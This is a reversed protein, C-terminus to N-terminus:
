EQADGASAELHVKFQARFRKGALCAAVDETPEADPEFGDLARVVSERLHWRTEEDICYRNVSGSRSMTFIAATTGTEGGLDPPKWNAHLQAKWASLYAAPEPAAACALAPPVADRGLDFVPEAFAPCALDDPIRTACSTCAVLPALALCAIRLASRESRERM